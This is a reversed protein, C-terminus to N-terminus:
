DCHRVVRCGHMTFCEEIGSMHVDIQRRQLTQMLCLGVETTKGQCFQVASCVQPVAHLIGFHGQPDKHRAAHGQCTGGSQRHESTM